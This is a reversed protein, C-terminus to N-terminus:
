IIITWYFFLFTNIFNFNTKQAPRWKTAHPLWTVERTNKATDLPNSKEALPSM